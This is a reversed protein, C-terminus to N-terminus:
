TNVQCLIDTYWLQCIKMGFLVYIVSPRMCALYIAIAFLTGQVSMTEWCYFSCHIWLDSLTVAVPVIWFAMYLCQPLILLLFFCISYWNIVYFRLCYNLTSGTLNENQALCYCSLLDDWMMEWLLRTVSNNSTLVVRVSRLRGDRRLRRRKCLLTVDSMSPM